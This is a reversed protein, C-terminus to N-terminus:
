TPKQFSEAKTSLQCPNKQSLSGEMEQIGDILGKIEKIDKMNSDFAAKQNADVQVVGDEIEFSDAIEKNEDMKTRMATQLENLRSTDESM